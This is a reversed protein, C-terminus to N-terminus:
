ALEKKKRKRVTKRRKPAVSIRKEIDMKVQKKSQRRGGSKKRESGNKRQTGEMENEKGRKFFSHIFVHQKSVSRAISRLSLCSSM